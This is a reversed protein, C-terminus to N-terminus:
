GRVFFDTQDVTIRLKNEAGCSECKVTEEPLLWNNYQKDIHAKVARFMEVDYGEVFEYIAKTDTEITGDVEISQISYFISKINMKAMSNLISDQFKEKEKEDTIKPAQIALARQYGVSEKQLDTWEQYTLPRINFKFNEYILTDEFELTNLYDIYRTIDIDYQNDESCKSCKKGITMTKGYSSLRISLLLADIDLTVLEFPKQISPVCSQINKATAQGNILADPTKYLIEDNATMSFVALNSYTDEYLVGNKYFKGKSPLDVYIKPQRAYKKLPSENEM